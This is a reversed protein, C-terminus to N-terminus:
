QELKKKSEIGSGNTQVKVGDFLLHSFDFIGKHKFIDNIKKLM